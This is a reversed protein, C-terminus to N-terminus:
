TENLKTTAHVEAKPDKLKTLGSTAGAPVHIETDENQIEHRSSNFNQYVGNTQSARRSHAEPALIKTRNPM